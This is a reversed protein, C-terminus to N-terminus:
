EFTIVEGANIKKIIWYHRRSPTTLRVSGMNELKKRLTQLISTLFDDRDYIIIGDLVADM